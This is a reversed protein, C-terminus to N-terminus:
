KSSSKTHPHLQFSFGHATQQHRFPLMERKDFPKKIAKQKLIQFFIFVGCIEVNNNKVFYIRNALNNMTEKSTNCISTPGHSQLFNLQRGRCQRSDAGSTIKTVM